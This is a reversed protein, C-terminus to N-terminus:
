IKQMKLHNQLSFIMIQCNLLNITSSIKKQYFTILRQVVMVFANHKLLFNKLLRFLKRGTKKEIKDVSHRLIALECEEFSLKKECKM